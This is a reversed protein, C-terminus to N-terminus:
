LRHVAFGRIRRRHSGYLLHRIEASDAKWDRHGFRPVSAPLAYVPVAAGCQGDVGGDIHVQGALDACVADTIHDEGTDTTLVVKHVARGERFAALCEDGQRGTGGFASALDYGVESGSGSHDCGTELGLVNDSFITTYIEAVLVKRLSGLGEDGDGM